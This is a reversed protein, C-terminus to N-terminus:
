SSGSLTERIRLAARGDRLCVKLGETTPHAGGLVRQSIRAADELMTVAERVDDLTASPDAYLAAAYTWRLRLSLEHGDGLTRLAVPVTKHLLSKVEEFLGLDLLDRAYNFADM